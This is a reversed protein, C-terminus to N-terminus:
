RQFVNTQKPITRKTSVGRRTDDDNELSQASGSKKSQETRLQRATQAVAENKGQKILAARYEEPNSALWTIEAILAYNPEVYQYKELLHGLLNTSRGSISPYEPNILGNYLTAQTKKDLKLGNIEGPRLAEFVSQMYAQAAEEQKKKQLEQRAVQQAVQEEQMKDLKPKFQKAKQELKGLDKWTTIEDEIMDDDGYGTTQLYQRIIMEQDTESEPDLAAVEEVQALARFLSKMDTGGNAVYRAAAQLEQPLSEFFEEPTKAAIDNKLTDINAQWLEEYDKEGLGSLYEDITQTKEDYDDFTFMDGTEIRKKFFEVLGSKETKPRGGKSPAKDEDDKPDTFDDVIDKVEDAPTEVKNEDEEEDKDLFTLDTSPKAFVSPKEDKKDETPTIISDAGPAGLWSDIDLDIERVSTQATNDVNM